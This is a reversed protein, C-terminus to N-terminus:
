HNYASSSQQWGNQAKFGIFTGSQVACSSVLVDIFSNTTASWSFHGGGIATVNIVGTSLCYLQHIATATIGDGNAYTTGTTGTSPYPTGQVLNIIQYNQNYVAM